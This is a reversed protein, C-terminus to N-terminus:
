VISRARKTKETSAVSTVNSASEIPFIDSMFYIFSYKCINDFRASIQCILNLDLRIINSEFDFRFINSRYKTISVGVRVVRLLTSEVSPCTDLNCTDVVSVV